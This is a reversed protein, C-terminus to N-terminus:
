VNEKGVIILPKGTNNLYIGGKLDSKKNLVRTLKNEVQKDVEIEKSEKKINKTM